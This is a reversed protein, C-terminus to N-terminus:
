SYFIWTLSNNIQHNIKQLKEGLCVNNSHILKFPDTIVCNYQRTQTRAKKKCFRSVFNIIMNATDGLARWTSPICSSSHYLIQLLRGHSCCSTSFILANITGGISQSVFIATSDPRYQKSPRWWSITNLQSAALRWDVPGQAVARCENCLGCVRANDNSDGCSNDGSHRCQPISPDVGVHVGVWLLLPQVRCPRPQDSSSGKGKHSANLFKGHHKTMVCNRQLFLGRM